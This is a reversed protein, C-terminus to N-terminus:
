KPRNRATPDLAVELGAAVKEAVDLLSPEDALPLCGLENTRGTMNMLVPFQLAIEVSDLGWNCADLGARNFEGVYVPRLGRPGDTFAIVTARQITPAVALAEKVTVLSHALVAMSYLQNRETKNLRRATPRGTPTTTPVREPVIADVPLIRVVLSVGDGDCDIAAAPADNDAFAAELTALVAEPDRALLAQWAADLQQQEDAREADALSRQEAARQQASREASARADLRQKRKFVSIGALQRDREERELANLDPSEREPAIPREALSFQHQHADGHTATFAIMLNAVGQVEELRAQQRLDREYATRQSSYSRSRGGLHQYAGFPGIGTSVGVGRTGVHVRAARPGVGASVGRSSARIRVGPALKMSFGM